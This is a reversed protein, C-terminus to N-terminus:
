TVPMRPGAIADDLNEIFQLHPHRETEWRLSLSNRFLLMLRGDRDALMMNDGYHELAKVDIPEGVVWRALDFPLTSFKVEVGYESKLRSQFVEFQLQGIAGLIPEQEGVNPRFFLQVAGEEILQDLGKKFQKRKGPDRLIITAFLEPTFRPIGQFQINAGECLTDGIRLFRPDFLGVVDGPYAHEVLVRDQAMFQLSKSLRIERGLRVHKVSMGRTFKGSVIRMFAVCDRHNPNMNAQIKFIFGSFREDDPSREGDATPKPGPKPALGVFSDLFPEVGFNSMASGFYMPSLDGAVVRAADFPDGAIDLMEIDENLQNLLTQGIAEVVAPDGLKMRTTTGEKSGHKTGQFLV